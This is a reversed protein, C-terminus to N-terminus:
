NGRFVKRFSDVMRIVESNGRFPKEVIDASLRWLHRWVFRLNGVVAIGKCAGVFAKWDLCTLSTQIMGFAEPVVSTGLSM